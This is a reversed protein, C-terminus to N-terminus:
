IDLEGNGHTVEKRLEIAKEGRHYQGIVFTVAMGLTIDNKEMGIADAIQFFYETLDTKTRVFGYGRESNWHVINGSLRTMTEM